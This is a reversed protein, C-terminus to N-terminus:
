GSPALQSRDIEAGNRIWYDGVHEYGWARMQRRDHPTDKWLEIVLDPQLQGISYEYDWKDHGPSFLQRARGHAIVPDNKGLLDIARRHSFYPVTGAWVVAIRADAPTAARIWLAERVKNEDDRVHIGGGSVWEAVPRGNVLGVLVLLWLTAIAARAAPSRAIRERRGLWLAAFALATALLEAVASADRWTPLRYLAFGGVFLGGVAFGWLAAPGRASRLAEVGLLALVLLLPLV